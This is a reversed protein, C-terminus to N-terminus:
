APRSAVLLFRMDKHVSPAGCCHCVQAHKLEPTDHLLSPRAKGARSGHADSADLAAPAAAAHRAAACAGIDLRASSPPIGHAHAPSSQQPLKQRPAAELDRDTWPVAAAGAAVQRGKADPDMDDARAAAAATASPRGVASTPQVAALCGAGAPRALSSRAGTAVQKMRALRAALAPPLAASALESIGPQSGMSSLSTTPQVDLGTLYLGLQIPLTSPAKGGTQSEKNSITCPMAGCIGSAACTAWRAAGMRCAAPWTKGDQSALGQTDSLIPLPCAAQTHTGLSCHSHVQLLTHQLKCVVKHQSSYPRLSCAHCSSCCIQPAPNMNHSRTTIQAYAFSVSQTTHCGDDFGAAPCFLMSAALQQWMWIQPPKTKTTMAVSLVRQPASVQDTPSHRIGVPQHLKQWSTVARCFGSLPVQEVHM